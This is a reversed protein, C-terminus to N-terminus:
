YQKDHKYGRTANYQLKLEIHKEININLEQCLNLTHKYIERIGMSPGMSFYADTSYYNILLVKEGFNTVKIINKYSLPITDLISTSINFGGCFDFIRILVDALEDEVTDKICVEFDPKFFSLLPKNENLTKNRQDILFNREALTQMYQDLKAFGNKRHAEFAENLESIILAFAEAQNRETDWFGKSKSAEYCRKTM